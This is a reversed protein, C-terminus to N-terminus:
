PGVESEPDRGAHRAAIRPRGNSQGAGAAHRLRNLFADAAAQLDRGLRRLEQRRPGTAYLLHAAYASVELLLKELPRIRESYRGGRLANTNGEPAGAGPRRGGRPM